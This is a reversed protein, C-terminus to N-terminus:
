LFIKDNLQERETSTYFVKSHILHQHIQDLLVGPRLVVPRLELLGHLLLPPVPVAGVVLILHNSM